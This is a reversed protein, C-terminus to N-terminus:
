RTATPAQCTNTSFLLQSLTLQARSAVQSSRWIFAWGEFHEIIVMCWGRYLEPASCPLSGATIGSQRAAYM